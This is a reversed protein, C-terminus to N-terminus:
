DEEKPLSLLLSVYAGGKYHNSTKLAEATDLIDGANQGNLRPVQQYGYGGGIAAYKAIRLQVGGFIGVQDKVPSVGLQFSGGFLPNRWARPTITLMASINQARNEGAKEVIKFKGDDQKEASFSPAKVFSYVMGAGFGLDVPSYARTPIKIEGTKRAPAQTGPVPPVPDVVIVITADNEPSISEGELPIEVDVDLVAKKFERLTQLTKKADDLQEQQAKQSALKNELDNIRQLLEENTPAKKAPEQEKSTDTTSMGLTGSNFQNGTTNPLLGQSNGAASETAASPDELAEGIADLDWANVSDKATPVSTSRLTNEAITPMEVAHMKLKALAAELRTRTDLGSELVGQAPAIAKAFALAAAWNPNPTLLTKGKSYKFFVPNPDAVYIPVTQPAHIELKKDTDAVVSHLTRKGDLTQVEAHNSKHFYVIKVSSDSVSQAQAVATVFLLLGAIRTRM